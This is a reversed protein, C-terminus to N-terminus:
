HIVNRIFEGMRLPALMMDAGGIRWAEGPMGWVVSSEPDQVLTLAGTERAAKLEQAGDSGMGSLLIGCWSGGLENLLSKFLVSVSPKVGHSQPGDTLRISGKNLEMHRGAPAVIVTDSSPVEGDRALQIKRGSATKIWEVYGEDFGTSMHQVLLLPVPLPAPLASLLELTAKPGGTSAGVAIVKIQYPKKAPPSPVKLERPKIGGMPQTRNIVPMATSIIRRAFTNPDTRPAPKALVDFAGAEFAKFTLAVEGPSWLSSIVLVPIEWRSRIRRIAEMGGMGPMEVDMTVLDFRGGSLTLVELAEEGSETLTVTEVEPLSSLGMRMYRRFSLSDDVVLVKIGM